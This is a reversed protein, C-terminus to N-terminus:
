KPPEFYAEYLLDFTKEMEGLLEDDNSARRAAGQASVHTLASKVLTKDAFVHGIRAELEEIPPRGAAM